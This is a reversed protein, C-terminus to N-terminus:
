NESFDDLWQDTAMYWLNMVYERRVRLNTISAAMPSTNLDKVLNKLIEWRRQDRRLCEVGRQFLRGPEIDMADALNYWGRHYAEQFQAVTQIAWSKGYIAPSNETSRRKEPSGSM